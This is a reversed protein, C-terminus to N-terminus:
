STFTLLKCPESCIFEDTLSFAYVEAWYTLNMFYVDIFCDEGCSIVGATLGYSSKFIEARELASYGAATVWVADFIAAYIYTQGTGISAAGLAFAARETSQLCCWWSTIYIEM